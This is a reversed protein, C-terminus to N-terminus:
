VGYVRIDLITNDAVIGIPRCYKDELRKNVRAFESGGNHRDLALEM